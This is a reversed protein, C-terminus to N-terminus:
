VSAAQPGTEQKLRLGGPLPPLGAKDWKDGVWSLPETLGVECDSFGLSLSPSGGLAECHCLQTLVCTPPRQLWPEEM